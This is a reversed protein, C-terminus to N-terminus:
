TLAEQALWQKVCEALQDHNKIGYDNSTVLGEPLLIAEFVNGDCLVHSGEEDCKAVEADASEQSVYFDEFVPCDGECLSYVSWGEVWKQMLPISDPLDRREIFEIGMDYPIM